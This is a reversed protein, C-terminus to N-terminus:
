FLEIGEDTPMLWDANEELYEEISDVHTDADFLWSPEEEKAYSSLLALDFDDLNEDIYQVIEEHSVMALGTTLTATGEVVSAHQFFMWTGTLLFLLGAAVGWVLRRNLRFTYRRTPKKRSVLMAQQSLEQWYNDPLVQRKAQGQWSALQRAKLAELEQRIEDRNRM